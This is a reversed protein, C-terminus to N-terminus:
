MGISWDNTKIEVKNIQKTFQSFFIHLQGLLFFIVAVLVFFGL